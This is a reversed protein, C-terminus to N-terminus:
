YAVRDLGEGRDENQDRRGGDLRSDLRGCRQTRARLFCFAGLNQGSGKVLMTSHGCAEVRALHQLPPALPQHRQSSHSTAFYQRGLLLLSM